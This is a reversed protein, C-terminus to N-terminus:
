LWRVRPPWISWLPRPCRIPLVPWCPCGCFTRARPRSRCGASRGSCGARRRVPRRIPRPDNSRLRTQADAARGQRERRGASVALSAATHRLEHPTLGAQGIATAAKDFWIARANRNRLVGGMPWSFVLDERDKSALALALEDVISRDGAAPLVTTWDSWPEGQWAVKSTPGCGRVVRPLHPRDARRSTPRAPSRRM